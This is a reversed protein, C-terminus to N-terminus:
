VVVKVTAEQSINTPNINDKIKYKLEYVGAAKGAAVQVKGDPQITINAESQTTQITVQTNNLGTTAGLKDNDLINLDNNSAGKVNQATNANFEVDKNDTDNQAIIANADVVVTATAQKCSKAAGTANDCVTYRITYTGSPTGQPLKIKGKDAGSTVLYPVTGSGATQNITIDVDSPSPNSTAGNIRVNDLVNGGDAPTTTTSPAGGYNGNNNVLKNTVVVTVTKEASAASAPQGIETIKYKVTYEGAPTGAQVDM